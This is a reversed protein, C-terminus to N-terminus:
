PILCKGLGKWNGVKLGKENIIVIDKEFKSDFEVYTLTYAASNNLSISPLFAIRNKWDSMGHYKLIGQIPYAKAAGEGNLSSREEVRPFDEISYNRRKLESLIEYHHKKMIESVKEFGAPIQTPLYHKELGKEM